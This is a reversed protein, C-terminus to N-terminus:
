RSRQEKFEAIVILIIFVAISISFSLSLGTILQAHDKTFATVAVTAAQVATGTFFAPAAARRLNQWFLEDPIVFFYRFFVFFAFFALFLRGETIIGIIGIFGLLGLYGLPNKLKM